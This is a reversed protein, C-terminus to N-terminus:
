HTENLLAGIMANETAIVKLNAKYAHEAQNLNVVEQVYDVNPRAVMGDDDALRNGPDYAKVHPPEVSVFEARKGGGGDSSQYVRVPEYVPPATRDRGAGGAETRADEIRITNRANAVNSASAEVRKAAADLGSLSTNIAGLM